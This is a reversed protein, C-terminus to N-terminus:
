SEAPAVSDMPAGSDTPEAAAGDGAPAAGAEADADGAARGTGMLDPAGLESMASPVEPTITLGPDELPAKTYWQRDDTTEADGCAAVLLAVALGALLAKKADIMHVSKTFRIRAACDPPRRVGAGANRQTDGEVRREPSQPRVDQRAPNM